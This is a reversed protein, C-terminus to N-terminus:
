KAANRAAISGGVGGGVAALVILIALALALFFTPIRLGCLTKQWQHSTSTHIIPSDPRAAAVFSPTRLLSEKEVKAIHSVPQLGESAPTQLAEM